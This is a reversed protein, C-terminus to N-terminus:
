RALRGDSEAHAASGGDPLDGEIGRGGPLRPKSVMPIVSTVPIYASVGATRLGPQGADTGQCTWQALGM